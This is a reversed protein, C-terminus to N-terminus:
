AGASRAEVLELRVGEISVLFEEPDDPTFRQFYM